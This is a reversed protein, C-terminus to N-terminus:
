KKIGLVKKAVIFNTITIFLQTFVTTWSAGFYSFKPIILLNATLNIALATLSFVLILRQEGGAFAVALWVGNLVSLGLALSLIRLSYASPLFQSGFIGVLFSSLTNIFLTSVLALILSILVLRKLLKLFNSKRLETSVIPFITLQYFGFFVGAVEFYKYAVSYLGLDPYIKPNFFFSLLLADIKFYLTSVVVWLGIPWAEKLIKKFTQCNITFFKHFCPNVRLTLLFGIFNGILNVLIFYELRRSIQLGMFVLLTVTLSCFVQISVVKLFQFKAQFVAWIMSSLQLFLNGSIAILIGLRVELSYPLLFQLFFSVILLILSLFLRLSFAGAFYEEDARGAAVEKILLTGLGFDSLTGLIGLYVFILSYQGFGKVGLSRAILVTSIFGLFSTFIKGIIQYSTNSFIKEELKSIM